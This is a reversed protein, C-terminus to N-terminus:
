IGEKLSLKSKASLKKVHKEPTLKEPMTGGIDAIAKRVKSGVVFHTKGAAREGVWGKEYKERLQDKTQTIRFLNAALETEGARDLLKDKGLKKLQVIDRYRMGYLGKYGEDHFTGFRKVGAQKAVENLQKNHDMVEERILLRRNKPSLKEFLEQKHTQISFYSQAEAVSLKAPDANQAILFCAYKSLFYDKVKRQTASGIIVMKGVESFHNSLNANMKNVSLQAKAVVKDFNKWQDYELVEMLERASWYEQGENNIMKIDEFKQRITKTLKQM